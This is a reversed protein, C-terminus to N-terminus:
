SNLTALLVFYVAGLMQESAAQSAFSNLSRLIFLKQTPFCVLLMEFKVCLARAEPVLKAM